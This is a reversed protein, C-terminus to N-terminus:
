KSYEGEYEYLLSLSNKIKFHYFIEGFGMGETFRALSHLFHDEEFIELRWGPSKKQSFIFLVLEIKETM